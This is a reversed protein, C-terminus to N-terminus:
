LEFLDDGFDVSDKLKLLQQKVNIQSVSQNPLAFLGQTAFRYLEINRAKPSLSLLADKLESDNISMKFSSLATILKEHSTNYTIIESFRTSEFGLKALKNIETNRVRPILGIVAEFLPTGKPVTMKFM